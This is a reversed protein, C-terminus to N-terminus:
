RMGAAAVAALHQFALELLEVAARGEVARLQLLALVVLPAVISIQECGQGIGLYEVRPQLEQQRRLRRHGAHVGQRDDAERQGVPEAHLFAVYQQDGPVVGAHPLREEFILAEADAAERRHAGAVVTGQVVVGLLDAVRAHIEVRQIHRVDLIDHRNGDDVGIARQVAQALADHLAAAVDPPHADARLLQDRLDADVAGPIL